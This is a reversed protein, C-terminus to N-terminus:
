EVPEVELGDYLKNASQAVLDNPELGEFIAYDKGDNLRSVEVQQSVIKGDVVKYVFRKDQIDRVAARPVIYTSDVDIKLVVNASGGSSLIRKENKFAARVSFCGTMPDIVGSITEVRGKTRFDINGLFELEADPLEKLMSEKSGYLKLSELYQWETISFQAYITSNDSVITLPSSLSPGVLTGVKYPLTGVFGDVPSKIETYSLDNKAAMLAAKAEAEEAKAALLDNVAQDFQYKSIVGREMLTKRSDHALQCKAVVAQAVELSASAANVKAIYPIQDIVFLLEGRSVRQGETVKIQQLTGSVQPLIAIDQIGKLTAPFSIDFTATQPQLRLVKLQPKEPAVDDKKFLGCSSLAL